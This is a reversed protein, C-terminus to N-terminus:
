VGDPTWVGSAHARRALDDVLKMAIPAPVDRISTTASFGPTATKVELVAVGLRRDFPSQRAEVGQIKEDPVIWLRRNWVGGRGLLYGPPAAFALVRYRVVAAVWAAPLLVALLWPLRPDVLGLPGLALLMPLSWRGFARRVAVPNVKQWEVEGLRLDPFLERCFADADREHLLLAIASSSGSEREVVSGATEAVATWYGLRRRLLPADLRLLQVRRLPVVNEVQKMLGYRRRLKGEERSLTFGHFTLYVGGISIVWGGVVLLVFASVLVVAPPFAQLFRATQRLTDAFTAGRDGVLYLLGFAFSVIVGARNETAGYLVLDRTRAVWIPTSEPQVDPLEFAFQPTEEGASVPPIQAPQSTRPALAARLREAQDEGLVSLHAEAGASAATEIKLDVVKLLRHALTRELHINQIRDLPIRRSQRNLVGYRIHLYDGDIAFHYTMYRVTSSVIQIAAFVVVMSEFTNVAAGMVRALVVIAILYVFRGFFRFIEILITAPHLRQEPMTARVPSEDV